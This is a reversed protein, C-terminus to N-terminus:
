RGPRDNRPNVRPPTVLRYGIGRITAIYAPDAADDRLARRVTRIHVDVVRDDGDYDSGWVTRLLQRCTLV